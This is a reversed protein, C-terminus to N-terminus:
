AGNAVHAIVQTAEIVEDRTVWCHTVARIRRPATPLMKVRETAMRKCLEAADFPLASDLDFYVM